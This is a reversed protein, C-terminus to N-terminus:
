SNCSNPDSWTKLLQPRVGIGSKDTLLEVQATADVSHDEIRLEDQVGALSNIEPVFGRSPKAFDFM